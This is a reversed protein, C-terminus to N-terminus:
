RKGKREIKFYPHLDFGKLDSKKLVAAIEESVLWVPEACQMEEFVFACVAVEGSFQFLESGWGTWNARGCQGCKGEARFAASATTPFRATPIAVHHTPDSPFPYYQVASDPVASLASRFKKSVIPFHDDSNFFDPTKKPLSIEADIGRRLAEFEDIRGCGPCALDRYRDRLERGCSFFLLVSKKVDRAALFYHRM